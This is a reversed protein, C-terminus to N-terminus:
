SKNATLYVIDHENAIQKDKHSKSFFTYLCKSMEFRRERTNYQRHISIM